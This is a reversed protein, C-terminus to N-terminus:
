LSHRRKHTVTGFPSRTAKPNKSRFVIEAICEKCTVTVDRSLLTVGMPKDCATRGEFLQGLHVPGKDDCVEFCGLIDSFGPLGCVEVYDVGIQGKPM